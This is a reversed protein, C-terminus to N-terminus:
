PAFVSAARRGGLGVKQRKPSNESCERENWCQREEPMRVKRLRCEEHWIAIVFVCYVRLRIWKLLEFNSLDIFDRFEVAPREFANIPSATKEILPGSSACLESQFAGGVAVLRGFGTGTFAFM